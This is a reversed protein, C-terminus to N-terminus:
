CNELPKEAIPGPAFFGAAHFVFALAVVALGQVVYWQANMWPGQNMFYLQAPYETIPAGPAGIILWAKSFLLASIVLIALQRPALRRDWEQAIFPVLMPWLNSLHRSESDISLLIALGLTAILGLGARAIRVQVAPWSALLLLMVPGFYITHAVLFQLPAMVSMWCSLRLATEAPMETGPVSALRSALLSVGVVVALSVPTRANAVSRFRIGRLQALAYSGAPVLALWLYCSALALSLPWAPRILDSITPWIRVNDYVLRATFIAYVLVVISTAVAAVARNRRDLAEELDPPALLLAAGVVSATPWVFRGLATAVLLPVFRRALAAWVMCLGLFFAPVDTLVPYYAPMKSIFFNVFLGVFGVVRGGVGLRLLRAIRVWLAAGAVILVANMFRFGLVVHAATRAIGLLRFTGYVLLSPLLRSVYYSTVGAHYRGPFDQAFGGYIAGDWGMGDSAPIADPTLVCWAGILLAAVMM